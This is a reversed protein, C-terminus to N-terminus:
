QQEKISFLYTVDISVSHLRWYLWIAECSIMMFLNHFWLCKCSFMQFTNLSQWDQNIQLWDQNIWRLQWFSKHLPLGMCSYKGLSGDKCLVFVCKFVGCLVHRSGSPVSQRLRMRSTSQVPQVSALGLRFDMCGEFIISHRGYNPIEKKGRLCKRHGQVTCLLDDLFLFYGKGWWKRCFGIM